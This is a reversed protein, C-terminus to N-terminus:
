FKLEWNIYPSDKLISRSCLLTPNQISPSKFFASWPYHAQLLLWCQQNEDHRWSASVSLIRNVLKLRSVTSISTSWWQVSSWPVLKLARILLMSCHASLMAHHRAQCAYQSLINQLTDAAHASLAIAWSARSARSPEKSSDICAPSVICSSIHHSRHWCTCLMAISAIFCIHTPMLRFKYCVPGVPVVRFEYIKRGAM